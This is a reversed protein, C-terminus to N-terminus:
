GGLLILASGDFSGLAYRAPSPQGNVQDPYTAIAYPAHAGGAVTWEKARGFTYSAAIAGLDDAGAVFAGARGM